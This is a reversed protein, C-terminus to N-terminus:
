DKKEQKEKILTVYTRKEQIRSYKKSDFKHKKRFDTKKRYVLIRNRVNIKLDIVPPGILEGEEYKREIVVEIVEM